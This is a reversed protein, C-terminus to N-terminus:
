GPFLPSFTRPLGKLEGIVEELDSTTLDNKIGNM